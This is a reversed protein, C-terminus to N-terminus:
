GIPDVIVTENLMAESGMMGPRVCGERGDAM